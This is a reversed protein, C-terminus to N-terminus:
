IAGNAREASSFFPDMDYHVWGEDTALKKPEEAQEYINHAQHAPALFDKKRHIM